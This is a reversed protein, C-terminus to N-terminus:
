IIKSDFHFLKLIWCGEEELLGLIGWIEISFLYILEHVLQEVLLFAEKALLVVIRNFADRSDHYVAAVGEARGAEGLEVHVRVRM